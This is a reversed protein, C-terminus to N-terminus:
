QALKDEIVPKFSSYPQAGEIMEGEVFQTPTATAGLASAEDAHNQVTTSQESNDICSQFGDIEVDLKEAWSVMVSDYEDPNQQQLEQLEDSNQYHNYNF